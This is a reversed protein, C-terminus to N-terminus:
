LHNGSASGVWMEDEGWFNLIVEIGLTIDATWSMPLLAKDEGWRIRTGPSGTMPHYLFQFFVNKGTGLSQESGDVLSFKM